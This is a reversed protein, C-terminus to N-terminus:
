EESPNAGSAETGAEGGGVTDEPPGADVGPSQGGGPVTGEDEVDSADERTAGSSPDQREREEM